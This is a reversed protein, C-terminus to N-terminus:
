CNPSYTALAAIASNAQGLQVRGQRMWNRAGMAVANAALTEGNLADAYAQTLMQTGTDFRQVAEHIAARFAKGEPPQGGMRVLNWQAHISLQFEALATLTETVDQSPNITGLPSSLADTRSTLTGYSSQVTHIISFSHDQYLQLLCPDGGYNSGPLSCSLPLLLVLVLAAVAPVRAGSLPGARPRASM